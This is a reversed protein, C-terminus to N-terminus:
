GARVVERVVITGAWRDHLALRRRTALVLVFSTVITFGGLVGLWLVWTADSLQSIAILFFPAAKAFGRQWIKVDARDRGDASLVALGLIRRGPSGLRSVEFVLWFWPLLFVTLGVSTVARRPELTLPDVLTKTFGTEIKVGEIRDGHATETAEILYFHEWLGFSAVRELHKYDTRTGGDPLEHVEKALTTVESLALPSSPVIHKFGVVDALVGVAFFLLSILAVDLVFAASRRM